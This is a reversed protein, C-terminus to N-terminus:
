MGLVPSLGVGGRVRSRTDGGWGLGAPKKVVRSRDGGVDVGSLSVM